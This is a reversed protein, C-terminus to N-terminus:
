YWAVGEEIKGVGVPCLYTFLGQCPGSAPGLGCLISRAGPPGTRPGPGLPAQVARAQVHPRPEVVSEGGTGLSWPIQSPFRRLHEVWTLSAGSVDAEQVDWRGHSGVAQPTLVLRSGEWAGEVECLPLAPPLDHCAM